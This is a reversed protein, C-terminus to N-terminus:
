SNNLFMQIIILFIICFFLKIYEYYKGFYIGSVIKTQRLCKEIEIAHEILNEPMKVDRALTLGYDDIKTIGPRIKYTYSLGSSSDTAPLAEM